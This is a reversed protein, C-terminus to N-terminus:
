VHNALFVSIPTGTLLVRTMRKLLMLRAYMLVLHRRVDEAPLGSYPWNGSPKLASPM